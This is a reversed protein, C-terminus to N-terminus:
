SQELLKKIKNIKDIDKDNNKDRRYSDKSSQMYVKLYDELELLKYKVKEDEVIRVEEPNIGAFPVLDDIAAFAIKFKGNSFAHEAHDTLEYGMSEIIVQFEEWNWHIFREPILIDIDDPNCDLGIVIELGLSGYLLPIIKLLSNLKKAIRLFEQYSKSM